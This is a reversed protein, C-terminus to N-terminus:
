HPFEGVIMWIAFRLWTLKNLSVMLYINFFMSVFPLLPVFPVKFYLEQQNQPQRWVLTISLLLSFILVALATIVYPDRNPIEESWLTVIVSIATISLFAVGVCYSVIRYSSESPLNVQIGSDSEEM